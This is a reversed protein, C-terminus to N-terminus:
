NHINEGGVYNKAREVCPWQKQPELGWRVEPSHEPESIALVTETEFANWIHNLDVPPASPLVTFKYRMFLRAVGQLSSDENEANLYDVAAQQLAQLESQIKVDRTPTSYSDYDSANMCSQNHYKKQYLNWGNQVLNARENIYGAVNELAANFEETPTSSRLALRSRVV